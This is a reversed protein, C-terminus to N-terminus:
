WIVNRFPNNNSYNIENLNCIIKEIESCVYRNEQSILNFKGLKGEMFDYKEKNYTVPMSHHSLINFLTAKKEFNPYHKAVMRSTLYEVEGREYKIREQLNNIEQKSQNLYADFVEKNLINLELLLSKILGRQLFTSSRYESGNIVSVLAKDLAIPDQIVEKNEHVLFINQLYQSKSELLKSFHNFFQVKSRLKKQMQQMSIQIQKCINTFPTKKLVQDSNVSSVQNTQSVISTASAQKNLVRSQQSTQKLNKSRPSQISVQSQQIVQSPNNTTQYKISQNNMECNSQCPSILAYNHKQQPIKNRSNSRRSTFFGSNQQPSLLPSEQPNVSQSEKLKIFGQDIMQFFKVDKKNRQSLQKSFDLKKAKSTFKQFASKVSVDNQENKETFYTTQTARFCASLNSNISNKKSIDFEQKKFNQNLQLILNNENIQQFIQRSNVQGTPSLLVDQQTNSITQEIPSFGSNKFQKNQKQM